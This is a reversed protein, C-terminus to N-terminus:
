MLRLYRRLINRTKLKLTNNDCYDLGATQLSPRRCLLWEPEGHPFQFKAQFASTQYMVKVEGDGESNTSNNMKIEVSLYRHIQSQLILCFTQSWSWNENEKMIWTKFIMNM